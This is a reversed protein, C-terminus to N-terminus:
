ARLRGWNSSAVLAVGVYVSNGACRVMEPWAWVAGRLRQGPGCVWSCFAGM